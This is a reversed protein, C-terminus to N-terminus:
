SPFPFTVQPFYTMRIEDFLTYAVVLILAANVVLGVWAGVRGGRRLAKVAFVVGAVPAAGLLLWFAIAVAWGAVNRAFLLIDGESLGLLPFILYLGIFSTALYAAVFTPLMWLSWRTLRSADEPQHATSKPSPTLTTM